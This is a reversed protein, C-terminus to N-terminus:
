DIKQKRVFLKITEYCGITYQSLGENSLKEDKSITGRYIDSAGDILKSVPHKKSNYM